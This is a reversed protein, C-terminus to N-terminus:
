KKTGDLLNQYEKCAKKYVDYEKGSAPSGADLCARYAAYMKEQAAKLEAKTYDPTPQHDDDGFVSQCEKVANLYAEHDAGSAPSGKDKYANYALIMKDRSARLVNQRECCRDYEDHVSGSTPQGAAMYKKYIGQFKVVDRDFAYDADAIAQAGDYKTKALAIYPSEVTVNVEKGGDIIKYTGKAAEKFNLRCTQDRASDNKTDTRELAMSLKYKVEILKALIQKAEEQNSYKKKEMLYSYKAAAIDYQGAAQAYSGQAYYADGQAMYKAGPDECGTLLTLTGLIVLLITLRNIIRSM